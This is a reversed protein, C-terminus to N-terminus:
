KFSSIYDNILHTSFAKLYFSDIRKFRKGEVHMASYNHTANESESHFVNLFLYRSIDM